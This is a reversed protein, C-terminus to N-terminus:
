RNRRRAPALGAVQRASSLYSWARRSLTLEGALDRPPHPQRRRYQRAHGAKSLGGSEGVQLDLDECRHAGEDVLLDHRVRRLEFVLIRERVGDDIAHLLQPQESQGDVLLVTSEALRQQRVREDHLLDGTAPHGDGPHDVRMEDDSVEDTLV